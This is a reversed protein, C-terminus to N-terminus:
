CRDQRVKSSSFRIVASNLGRCPLVAPALRLLNKALREACGKSLLIVVDTVTMLVHTM